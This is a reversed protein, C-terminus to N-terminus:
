LPFTSQKRQRQTAPEAVDEVTASEKVSACL